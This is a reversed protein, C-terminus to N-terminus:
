EFIVAFGGGPALKFEMKDASTVTQKELKYDTAVYAANMGDCFVKATYSRGRPLFGLDLTLDRATWDTIGGVYWRGGKERATVIYEGIRGQLVRSHEFVTPISAIYGTTEPERLYDSPSDCLMAFPSDFVM